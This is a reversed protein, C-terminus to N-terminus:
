EEVSDEDILTELEEEDAGSDVAAEKVYSSRRSGRQDFERNFLREDGVSVQNSLENVFVRPGLRALEQEITNKLDELGLGSVASIVMPKPLSKKYLYKELEKYGREELFDEILPDNKDTSFADIKNAVIYQPRAALEASFNKIEEELIKYEDLLNRGTNPDLDLLILLLRSREAHKLFRIGLGKGESAGEIIGPVDALVFDLFKGRVVGLNPVLTTFPYDAIKPKAASFRSILTSKGANPFGVLAVDALLKLELKVRRQAGPEGPQAFDPAQRAATAFNMNGLGGRGGKLLLVRVGPEILDCLFQDTDADRVVTGIPVEIVLDEGARGNCDKGEGDEGDSAPYRVDFKFDLLSQMNSSAEFYLNGGRGGDGGDPGMKPAYKERRFHVAGPGGRGSSTEIIAEDIFKM